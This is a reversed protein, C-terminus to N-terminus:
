YYKLFSYNFYYGSVFIEIVGMLTEYVQTYHFKLM